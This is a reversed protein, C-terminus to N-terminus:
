PHHLTVIRPLFYPLLGLSSTFWLILPFYPWLWLSSTMDCDLPPPLTMIRPLFYPWMGHFFTPDFDHPPILTVIRPFLICVIQFLQLISQFNKQNIEDYDIPFPTPPQQLSKKDLFNACWLRSYQFNKDTRSRDFKQCPLLTVIRPLFYPRLGQFSTLDCEMSSLLIM